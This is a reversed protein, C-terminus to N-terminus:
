SETKLNSLFSDVSYIAANTLKRQWAGNSPSWKFSKEKLTDRVEKSPKGPFFVQLREQDHDKIVEVDEVTRYTETGKPGKKEKELSNEIRKIKNRTSTLAYSPFPKDEGPMKGEKKLRDFKEAARIADESYGEVEEKGKQFEKYVKNAEKMIDLDTQLQALKEEPDENKKPAFKKRVKRCLASLEEVAEMEKEITSRNKESPFKAPGTVMANISRKRYGLIKLVKERFKEKFRELEKDPPDRVGKSGKDRKRVM